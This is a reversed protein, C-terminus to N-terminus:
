EVMSEVYLLKRSNQSVTFDIHLARLRSREATVLFDYFRYFNFYIHAIQIYANKLQRLKYIFKYTYWVYQHRKNKPSQM